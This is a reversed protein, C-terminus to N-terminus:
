LGVLFKIWTRGAIREPQELGVTFKEMTALSLREQLM